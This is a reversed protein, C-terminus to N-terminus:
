HVNCESNDSGLGSSNIGMEAVNRSLDSILGYIGLFGVGVPGLMLAMAKTRVIGFAINMVSSGGILASSKLIQGYAHKQTRATEATQPLAPLSSACLQDNCSPTSM